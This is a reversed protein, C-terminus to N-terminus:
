HRATHFRIGKQLTVCSGVKNGGMDIKMHLEVTQREGNIAYARLASMAESFTHSPPARYNFLFVDDQHKRQEFARKAKRKAAFTRTQLLIPGGFALRCRRGVTAAM